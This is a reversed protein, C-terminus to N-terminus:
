CHPDREPWREWQIHRYHHNVQRWDEDRFQNLAKKILNAIDDQSLYDVQDLNFWHYDGGGAARYQNLALSYNKERDISEGSAEDILDIIRIQGDHVDLKITLGSYLDYNFHQPKPEIYTPNITIQGAQNIQLYNLNYEMVEWLTQGSVQTKAVLNFFPYTKLLTENTIEGTFAQYAQNPLAVGSFQAGTEKLQIQNLFEAFPHGLLKSEFDTQDPLEIPAQGLPQNLWEKAQSFEPEMAEQVLTDEPSQDVPELSGTISQIANGNMEICVHGIYEGAYGPQVTFTQQSMQAIERHQHGTLLVDIGEIERVMEIGQNEGTAQETAQFTQLDAEFGGHYALVIVDAQDRLQDVYYHATQKADKFEIGRYHDELEWNPIYHTTLGIIALSIGEFDLIQYAKGFYPEQNEQNIINAALVQSNLHNLTNTLYDLGFNFEHNGIVQIDYGVQNMARAISQANGVQEQLYSAFSSGQIFDGLDITLVSDGAEQYQKKLSQLTTATNLLSKHANNPRNLWHGHTDSTYLLHIKHTM